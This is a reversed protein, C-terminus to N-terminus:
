ATFIPGGRSCGRRQLRHRMMQYESCPKCPLIQIKTALDIRKLKTKGMRSDLALFGCFFGLRQKSLDLQKSEEKHKCWTRDLTAATKRQTKNNSRNHQLFLAFFPHFFSHFVFAFFLSSFTNLLHAIMNLKTLFKLLQLPLHQLEFTTCPDVFKEQENPKCRNSRLM